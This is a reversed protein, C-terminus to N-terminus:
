EFLYVIGPEVKDWHVMDQEVTGVLNLPSDLVVQIDGEHPIYVALHGEPKLIRMFESFLHDADSVHQIVDFFFIMDFLDDPFALDLQGETQVIELQPRKDTAMRLADLAEANKDLAIIRGSRGVIDAAPIAYLGIRAGFDLISQGPKVSIRELAKKATEYFAQEM